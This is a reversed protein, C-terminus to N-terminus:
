LDSGLNISIDGEASYGFSISPSGPTSDLYGAPYNAAFFKNAASIAAVEGNSIARAAALSAADVAASLTAKVGYARATDVAFGVIALLAPLAIAMLVIIIGASKKKTGPSFRGNVM